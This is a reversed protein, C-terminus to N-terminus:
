PGAFRRAEWGGRMHGAARRFFSGEWSGDRASTAGRADARTKADFDDQGLQGACDRGSDCAAAGEGLRGVLARGSFRLADTEFAVRGLTGAIGRGVGQVAAGCLGALAEAGRAGGALHSLTRGVGQCDVACAHGAGCDAAEEVCHWPTTLSLLADISAALVQGLSLDVERAGVELSWPARDRGPGSGVVTAQFPAARVAIPPSARGNCSASAGRGDPGAPLDIRGCALPAEPDGAISPCSSAFGPCCLPLWYLVVSSWEEVGQIQRRDSASARLRLSGSARLNSLVTGLSDGVRVATRVWSPVYQDVIGALMGQMWPPLGLAGSLAQDLVRLGVFVDKVAAPLAGDLVFLHNTAWLGSVDPGPQPDTGPPLCRGNVCATGPACGGFPGGCAPAPAPDAVAVSFAVGAAGDLPGAFVLFSEVQASGLLFAQAEGAANTAATTAQGGNGSFSARAGPSLTFGLVDGAIPAGTDRDLERVVLRASGSARLSVQAARGTADVAVGPAAIIQLQRRVPIVSVFFAVKAAEPQDPASAVVRFGASLDGAVLKVRAIGSADTEASAGELAAGGTAGDALSFEVRAGRLPGSPDRALVVNLEREDSPHLALTLNGLAALKAAARGGDGEGCACLWVLLALAAAPVSRTSPNM